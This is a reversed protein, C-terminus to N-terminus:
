WLDKVLSIDVSDLKTEQLFVYIMRVDLLLSQMSCQKARDKLGHINLSFVKM